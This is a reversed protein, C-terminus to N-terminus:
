HRIGFWGAFTSAILTLGAGMISLLGVHGELRIIRDHDTRQRGNMEHIEGELTLLDYHMEELKTSITALKSLITEEASM